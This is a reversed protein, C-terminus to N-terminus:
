LQVASNFDDSGEINAPYTNRLVEDDACEEVVNTPGYYDDIDVWSDIPDIDGSMVLEEATAPDEAEVIYSHVQYAHLITLVKYKKTTTLTTM